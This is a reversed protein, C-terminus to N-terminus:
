LAPNRGVIVIADVSSASDLFSSSVTAAANPSGLDAALLAGIEATKAQVIV